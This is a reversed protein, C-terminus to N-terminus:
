LRNPFKEHSLAPIPFEFKLFIPFPRSGAVYNKFRVSVRHQDRTPLTMPTLKAKEFRPWELAKEHDIFTMENRIETLMTMEPDFQTLFPALFKSFRGM